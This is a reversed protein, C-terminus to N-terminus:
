IWFFFFFLPPVIFPGKLYNFLKTSINKSQTVHELLKLWIIVMASYKNCSEKGVFYPMAWSNPPNGFAIISEQSM